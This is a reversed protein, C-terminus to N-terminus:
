YRIMALTPPRALQGLDNIGFCLVKGDSTRACAHGAAGSVEVADTVGEEPKPNWCGSEGVRVVEGTSRVAWRGHDGLARM